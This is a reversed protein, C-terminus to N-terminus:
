NKQWVESHKFVLSNQSESAALTVSSEPSCCVFPAEPRSAHLLKVFHLDLTFNFFSGSHVHQLFHLLSRQCTLSLSVKLWKWLDQPDIKIVSCEVLKGPHNQCPFEGEALWPEEGQELKLIVKPKTSDYGTFLSHLRIHVLSAEPYFISGWLSNLLPGRKAGYWFSFRKISFYLYLYEGPHEFPM